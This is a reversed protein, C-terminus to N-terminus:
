IHKVFPSLFLELKKVSTTFSYKQVEESSVKSMLACLDPNTYLKEIKDALDQPDKPDFTYGNNHVFDKAASSPSDSILLPCWCAMAEMVVMWETEYLSPLVFVSSEQYITVLRDRDDRLRGTFEVIDSLGYATTLKHLEKELVWGWVFICRIPSTLKKQTHLLRLANLLVIQNKAPELRGVCLLTFINNNTQEWPHFLTTDVGNGIVVQPMKFHCYSYKKLLFETPYIIGDYRKYLFALVKKVIKILFRPFWPLILDPLTHSHSVIPIHLKKAARVAQRALMAPQISYIIDIKEQQFIKRLHSASTYAFRVGYAGIPPLYPFEYLKAYAFDKRKNEDRFKGTIWIIEHGAKALWAGFRKGSIYSWWLTSDDIADLVIAIRLKPSM